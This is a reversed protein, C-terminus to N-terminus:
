WKSSFKIIEFVFVISYILAFNIILLSLSILLLKWRSHRKAGNEKKENIQPMQYRQAFSQIIMPFILPITSKIYDNSSPISFPVLLTLIMLITTGFWGIAFAKKASKKNGLMQYNKGLFYCGAIPGGFLTGIFIQGKSWFRKKETIEQNIVASEMVSRIREECGKVM